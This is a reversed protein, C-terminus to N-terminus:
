RTGQTWTSAGRGSINWRLNVGYSGYRTDLSDAASGSDARQDVYAYAASLAVYRNFSWGVSGSVTFTKTDGSVPTGPPPPTASPEGFEVGLREWYGGLISANVGRAPSTRDYSVWGGRDQTAGGVGSGPTYSQRVGAGFASTETPTRTITVDLYMATDSDGESNARTAGVAYSLTMTRATNYTGVVGLSEVFVSDTDEFDFYSADLGLGLSSRESLERRWAGRAGFDISDNFDVPDIV